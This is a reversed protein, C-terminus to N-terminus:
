GTVEAPTLGGAEYEYHTIAKTAYRFQPSKLFERYRANDEQISFTKFKM